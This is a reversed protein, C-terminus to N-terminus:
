YRSSALKVDAMQWAAAFQARTAAAEDRKGQGDLALALGHLAWGDLRYSKLSDRYIAEAEPYEKAQLLAAGLIHSVPQHWYPPETYPLAQELVYAQRFEGIADQLYGAKRAVEGELLALAIRAMKDAPVGAAQYKSFGDDALSKLLLADRRAARLNGTNAFAFGRAYLSIATDLKL